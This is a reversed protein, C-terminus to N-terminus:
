KERLNDIASLFEKTKFIKHPLFAFKLCFVDGFRCNELSQPKLSLKLCYKIM